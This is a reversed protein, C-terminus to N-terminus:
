LGKPVLCGLGAQVKESRSDHRHCSVSLTPKQASRRAAEHHERLVASPPRSGPSRPSMHDRSPHKRHRHSWTMWCGRWWTSAALVFWATSRCSHGFADLPLLHSLYNASRSARSTWSLVGVLCACDYMSAGDCCCPM